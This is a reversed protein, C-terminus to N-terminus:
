YNILCRIIANIFLETTVLERGSNLIISEVFSYFLYYPSNQQAAILDYNNEVFVKSCISFENRLFDIFVSNGKVEAFTLQSFDLGNFFSTSCHNKFSNYQIDLISGSVFLQQTVTAATDVSSQVISGFTEPFLTALLLSTDLFLYGIYFAAVGIHAAALTDHDSALCFSMSTFLLLALM